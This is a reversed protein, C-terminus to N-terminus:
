KPKHWTNYKLIVWFARVADKWGIKKGEAYTRGYYSVPTEYIKIDFKKSIRAAKSVLEPEVGFRNEEIKIQKIIERKFMKHCCEIDTLNLDSFINCALTIIKNAVSHWFYLVRHEKSNLFRTGFVVDARGSKILHYMPLLDQPDYELDADHVCIIEGNAQEFGTRLAAGKGQNVDHSVYRICDYKHALQEAIQGSRDKSCDNVIVIELNDVEDRLKLVQEISSELLKEENYCPVIVSLNPSTPM